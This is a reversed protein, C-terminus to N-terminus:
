PVAMTAASDPVTMSAVVVVAPAVGPPVVHEDVVVAGVGGTVGVHAGEDDGGALVHLLALDDAILAGGPLTVPGWRWKSTYWFPVRTSGM